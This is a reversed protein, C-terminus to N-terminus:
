FLPKGGETECFGGCTLTVCPELFVGVDGGFISVNGCRKRIEGQRGVKVLKGGKMALRRVVSCLDLVGVSEGLGNLCPGSVVSKGDSFGLDLLLNVGEDLLVPGGM